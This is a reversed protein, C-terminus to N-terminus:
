SAGSATAPGVSDRHVLEYPLRAPQLRPEGHSNLLQLLLDTAAYALDYSPQDRSGGDARRRPDDKQRPREVRPARRM